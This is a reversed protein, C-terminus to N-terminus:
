IKADKAKIIDRVWKEAPNACIISGKRMRFLVGQKPCLSDTAKYSVVRKEPLNKSYFMFCCEDPGFSNQFAQVAFSSFLLLCTVLIVSNKMMMMKTLM